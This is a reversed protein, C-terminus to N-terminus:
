GLAIAMAVATGAPDVQLNTQAGAVTTAGTGGNALALTGAVTVAGATPTSPTLGTTGFSITTVALASVDEWAPATGTSKLVKGATGIGLKTLATGSAYYTLDGATYSSLGTGGYATTLANTLNLTNATLTTGNFTLNSSAGFVGNNNYQVQTNSGAVVGTGGTGAIVKVVGANDKYYLKGDTINIALEGNVLNGAVPAAAATTSYYLSIPTYGSAAM